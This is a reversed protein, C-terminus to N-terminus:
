EPDLPYEGSAHDDSIRGTPNECEPAVANEDLSSWQGNKWRKSPQLPGLLTPKCHMFQGIPFLKTYTTDEVRKNPDDRDSRKESRKKGESVSGSTVVPMVDLLGLPQLDPFITSLDPAPLLNEVALDASSPEAKVPDFDDLDLFLKLEDSYAIHERLPAYMNSKSTTKTTPISPETDGVTSQSNSKSPLLPDSSTAKLGIPATEVTAPKEEENEEGMADDQGLEQTDVDMSNEGNQLVSSDEVDEAKPELNKLGIGEDLEGRDVADLADNILAATELADVVSQQDKDQEDEDEDDSGYDVMLLSAKPPDPPPKDDDVNTGDVPLEHEDVDMDMATEQIEVRSRKWLVCIGRGVREALSGAAHWELVATSLNYALAMKWKREERFDIRM